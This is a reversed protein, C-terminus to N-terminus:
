EGKYKAQYEKIKDLWLYGSLHGESNTISNFVKNAEKLQEHQRTIIEALLYTEEEIEKIIADKQDLKTQQYDYALKMYPSHKKYLEADGFNVSFIYSEFTETIDQNKDKMKGGFIRDYGQDFKDKNINHVAREPFTEGM